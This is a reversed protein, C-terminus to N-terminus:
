IFHQLHIILATYENLYSHIICRQRRYYNKQLSGAMDSLSSNGIILDSRHDSQRRFFVVNKEPSIDSLVTAPALVIRCQERINVYFNKSVTALVCNLRFVAIVPFVAFIYKYDQFQIFHLSFISLSQPFCIQPVIQNHIAVMARFFFIIRGRIM